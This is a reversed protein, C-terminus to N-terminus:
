KTPHLSRISHRTGPWKRVTLEASQLLRELAGFIWALLGTTTRLVGYTAATLARLETASLQALAGVISNPNAGM